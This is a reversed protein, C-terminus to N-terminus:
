FRIQISNATVLRKTIKMINLKKTKLNKYVNLIKSNRQIKQSFFFLIKKTNLILNSFEAWLEMCLKEYTTLITDFYTVFM